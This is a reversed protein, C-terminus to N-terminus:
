HYTVQAPDFTVQVAEAHGTEGPVCKNTPPNLCQEGWQLWGCGGFGRKSGEFPPEMCWFCGGAFTAITEEIREHSPELPSFFLVIFRIIENPTNGDPLAPFNQELCQRRYGRALRPIGTVENIVFLAPSVGASWRSVGIV